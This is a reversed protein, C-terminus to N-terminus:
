RRCPSVRSSKSCRKVRSATSRAADSAPVTWDLVRTGTPVEHMRLPIYEDVIGLTARVGDGTISRCLPYLREVLEYMEEGADTM